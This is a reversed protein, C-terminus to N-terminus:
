GRAPKAVVTVYVPIIKKVPPPSLSALVQESEVRQFVLHPEIDLHPNVIFLPVISRTARAIRNVAQVLGAGAVVGGDPGIAVGDGLGVATGGVDVTVGNGLGVAAGGVGVTVGNGLAV